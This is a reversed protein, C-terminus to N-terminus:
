KKEYVPSKLGKSKLLKKYSKYKSKPVTVKIKKKTNKFTDNVYLYTYNDYAQVPKAGVLM